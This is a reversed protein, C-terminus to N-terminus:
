LSLVFMMIMVLFLVTLMIFADVVGLSFNMLMM